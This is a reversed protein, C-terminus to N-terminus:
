NIAKPIKKKTFTQTMNWFQSPFRLQITKDLCITHKLRNSIQTQSVSVLEILSKFSYHFSAVSFDNFTRSFKMSRFCSRCSDVWTQMGKQPHNTENSRQLIGRQLLPLTTWDYWTSLGCLGWWFCSWFAQVIGFQFSLTECTRQLQLSYFSSM